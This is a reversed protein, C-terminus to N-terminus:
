KTGHQRQEDIICNLQEPTLADLWQARDRTYDGQGPEFQQLFRIFDVPGLERLLAAYARNRLQAPTLETTTM